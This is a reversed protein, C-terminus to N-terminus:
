ATPASPAPPPPPPPPPAMASTSAPGSMAQEYWTVVGAIIAVSYPITFILGICCLIVGLGGILGAVWILVGAIITNTINSTAMEWIGSLDFGGNFGSRYTHLIVSPALFALLVSLAFSVLNGLAVLGASNGSNGAGQLVGGPIAFVVAYIVYVVFLVVGRELHFGAPPLERRGTRYNDITMALWGTTAIWGVIPIITILGQVLIKSAWQPDQFPWGFGDGPSNM